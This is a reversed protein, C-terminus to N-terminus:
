NRCKKKLRVAVSMRGGKDTKNHFWRNTPLAHCSSRGVANWYRMYWLGRHHHHHHHHNLVALSIGKLCCCRRRRRRRCRVGPCAATRGCQAAAVAATCVWCFVEVNLVKQLCKLKSKSLASEGSTLGAGKAWGCSRFTSTRRRNTSGTHLLCVTPSINKRERRRECTELYIWEKGAQKLRHDSAGSTLHHKSWTAENMFSRRLGSKFLCSVSSSHAKVVPLTSLTVRCSHVDRYKSSVNSGRIWCYSLSRRCLWRVSFCRHESLCHFNIVRCTFSLARWM